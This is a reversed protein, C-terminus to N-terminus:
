ELKNLWNTISDLFGECRIYELNNNEFEYIAGTRAQWMNHNCNPFTKITLNSKAGLTKEYLNKAKKWNVTKDTEGFLALVPIDIRSLIQDFNEVYLPLETEKDLAM